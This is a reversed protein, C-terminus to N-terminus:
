FKKILQAEISLYLPHCIPTNSYLLTLRKSLRAKNVTILHVPDM